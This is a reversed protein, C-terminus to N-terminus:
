LCVVSCSCLVKHSSNSKSMNLQDLIIERIPLCKIESNITRPSQVSVPTSYCTTICYLPVQTIHVGQPGGFTDQNCLHGSKVPIGLIDNMHTCSNPVM